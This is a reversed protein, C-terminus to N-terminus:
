EGIITATVKCVQRDSKFSNETSDYIHGNRLNVYYRCQGPFRYYAYLVMYLTEGTPLYFVDGPRLSSLTVTPPTYPRSCCDYEIVNSTHSWMGQGVESIVLRSHRHPQYQDTVLYTTDGDESVFRVRAGNPAQELLTPTPKRIDITNSM